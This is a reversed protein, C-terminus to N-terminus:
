SKEYALELQSILSQLETKMEPTAALLTDKKKKFDRLAKTFFNLNVLWDRIKSINEIDHTAKVLQRLQKDSCRQAAFAWLYGPRYNRLDEFLKPDYIKNKSLKLNKLDDIIQLLLGFERGTELVKRAKSLAMGGIIAGSFLALGTLAGTKFRMTSFSINAIEDRPVDTIKTGIDLAQGLHGEFLTDLLVTIIMNKRPNSLSLDKAKKFAWFYLWNGSNIALPLGHLRHYSPQGRRVPSGDQIDDVILSGAHVAELIQCLVSLNKKSIKLSGKNIKQAWKFGLEVLQRRIEKKPRNLYEELPGLLSPKLYKEMLKHSSIPLWSIKPTLM